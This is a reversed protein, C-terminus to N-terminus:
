WTSEKMTLTLIQTQLANKFMADNVDIIVNQCIKNM